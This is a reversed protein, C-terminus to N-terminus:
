AGHSSRLTLSRAIGFPPPEIMGLRAMRRLYFGIVSKSTCFTEALEGRSPAYHHDAQYQEIFAYIEYLKGRVRPTIYNKKM